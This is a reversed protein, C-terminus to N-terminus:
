QSLPDIAQWSQGGDKTALVINSSSPFLPSFSESGLGGVAWGRLDDAFSVSVLLQSQSPGGKVSAMKWTSGGDKTCLITCGAGVVCGVKTNIFFLSVLDKNTPTQIPVWTDGGDRTYAVFGSDGVLWGDREGSFFVDRLQKDVQFVSKWTKGGDQTLFVLGDLKVMLGHTANTFRIIPWCNALEPEIRIRRQRSYDGVPTKSVQQWSQGGDKTSYVYKGAAWGEKPTLFFFSLWQYQNDPPIMFTDRWTRGGDTTRRFVNGRWSVGVESNIFQFRHLDSMVTASKVTGDGGEQIVHWTRGGDRTQLLQSGVIWGTSPSVFQVKVYPDDNTSASRYLNYIGSLGFGGLILLGCPIILRTFNSM